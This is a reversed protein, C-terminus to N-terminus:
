FVIIRCNNFNRRESTMIKFSCTLSPRFCRFFLATGLVGVADCIVKNLLNIKTVTTSADGSHKVLVVILKVYADMTHYCKARALAPNQLFVSSTQRRGVRERVHLQHESFNLNRYCLEVCMETSIRFFRSILDDSRLMGHQHLQSFSVRTIIRFLQVDGSVKGLYAAYLKESDRTPQHYLRVWETLLYEM